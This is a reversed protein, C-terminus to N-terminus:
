YQECNGNNAILIRRKRLYEKNIQQYENWAADKNLIDSYNAKFKLEDSAEHLNLSNDCNCQENHFVNKCM